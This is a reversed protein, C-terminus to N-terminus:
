FPKGPVLVRAYYLFEYIVATFLKIPNARALTQGHWANEARGNCDHNSTNSAHDSM